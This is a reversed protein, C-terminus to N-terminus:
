HHHDHDHRPMPEAPTAPKSAAAAHGHDHGHPAPEAHPGVQRNAARWEQDPSAPANAPPASRTFASAYVPAPVTASADAPDPADLNSQASAVLPLLALVTAPWYHSFPM